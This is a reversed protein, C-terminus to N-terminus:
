VADLLRYAGFRETRSQNGRFGAGLTLDAAADVFPNSGCNFVIGGHVGPEAIPASDLGGIVGGAMPRPQHTFMIVAGDGLQDAYVV